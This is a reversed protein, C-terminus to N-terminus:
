PHRPILTRAWRHLTLEIAELLYRGRGRRIVLHSNSRVANSFRRKFAEDGITFDFERCGQKLARQLLFRLLLNGPSRQQYDMSFSPKYWIFKKQYEFGFHYALPENNFDLKSFVLWGTPLMREVLESYFRRNLATNFLSPHPTNRWRTVHQEFFPELQTKAEHPDTIDRFSVSGRSTFYNAPRKLSDKHLVLAVDEARGDIMLTPCPTTDHKLFKLHRAGCLRIMQEVTSSNEPINSLRIDDWRARIAVLTRMIVELVPTTPAPIIFDCYDAKGDSLFKIVRSRQSHRIMLPAIGAIDRGRYVVILLLERTAAFVKWWSILWEYTQFVTNTECRSAFDNWTAADFPLQSFDSYIRAYLKV